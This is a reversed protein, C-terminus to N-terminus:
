PVTKKLPHVPAPGIKKAGEDPSKAGVRACVRVKTCGMNPAVTVGVSGKRNGKLGKKINKKNQNESRPNESPSARNGGEGPLPPKEPNKGRNFPKKRKGTKKRKSNPRFAKFKTSLGTRALGGEGRAKKKRTTGHGTQGKQTVFPGNHNGKRRAPNKKLFAAGQPKVKGDEGSPNSAWLRRVIQGATGGEGGGPVGWGGGAAVRGVQKLVCRHSSGKGPASKTPNEGSIKQWRVRGKERTVAFQRSNGAL